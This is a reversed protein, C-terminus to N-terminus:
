LTVLVIDQVLCLMAHVFLHAHNQTVRVNPAYKQMVHVNHALKHTARANDMVLVIVKHSLMKHHVFQIVVVYVEMVHAIVIFLVSQAICMVLVIVVKAHVVPTEIVSM